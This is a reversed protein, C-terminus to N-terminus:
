YSSKPLTYNMEFYESYFDFFKTAIELSYDGMSENLLKPKAAIEVLVGYKESRKSIVHFDGIALAFLYTSM